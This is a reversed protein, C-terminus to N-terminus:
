TGMDAGQGIKRIATGPVVGGSRQGSGSFEGVHVEVIEAGNPRPVDYNHVHRLPDINGVVRHMDHEGIGVATSVASFISIDLGLTRTTASFAASTAM